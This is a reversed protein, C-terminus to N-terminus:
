KVWGSGVCYGLSGVWVVMECGWRVLEVAEVRNASIRSRIDIVTINHFFKKKSFEVAPGLEVWGVWPHVRGMYIESRMRARLFVIKCSVAVNVVYYFILHYHFIYM